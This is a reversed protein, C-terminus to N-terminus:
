SQKQKFCCCNEVGCPSTPIKFFTQSVSHSDPSSPSFIYLLELSNRYARPCSSLLEKSGPWYIQSQFILKVSEQRDWLYFLVISILVYKYPFSSWDTNHNLFMLLGQLAFCDRGIIHFMNRNDKSAKCNWFMRQLLLLSLPMLAYKWAYSHLSTKPFTELHEGSTACM